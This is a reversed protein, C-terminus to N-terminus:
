LNYLPAPFPLSGEAASLAFRHGTALSGEAVSLAPWHLAAFRSMASLPGGCRVLSHRTGSHSSVWAVGRTKRFLACGISPFSNPTSFLTYAFHFLACSAPLFPSLPLPRSLPSAGSVAPFGARAPLGAVRRGPLGMRSGFFPSREPCALSSRSPSGEVASLAPWRSVM